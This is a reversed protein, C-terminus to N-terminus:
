YGAPGGPGQPGANSSAAPDTSPSSGAPFTEGGPVRSPPPNIRRGGIMVGLVTAIDDRDVWIIDAPEGRAIVGRSPALGPLAAAVNATMMVVVRPLSVLGRAVAERAALLMPDPAGGGFDTSLTDVVGEALMAFLIDPSATTHRAGFADFTSVDVTVGHERLRRALAVAEEPTFTDHNAHGAVLRLGAPVGVRRDQLLAEVAPRSAAATHVVMPLGLDLAVRAAEPFAELAPQVAPMVTARVLDVSQDVTLRGRLGLEELVQAVLRRDPSRLDLARGLVAEKLRRAQLPTLRVGTAREIAQPLYMYEQGGGGLTHGSGVEGVAVAGHAAAEAATFARHRDSLGSGDARRAATRHRPTHVTATRLRIPTLQAAAEVEEPLAFGDLNLLTTVGARLHADLQARVQAETLAPAGSAFRPGVTVGHAHHNILGPLLCTGTLDVIDGDFQGPPAHAADVAAIRGDE